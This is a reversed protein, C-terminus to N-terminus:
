EDGEGLTDAALNHSVVTANLDSAVRLGQHEEVMREVYAPTPRPGEPRIAEGPLMQWAVVGLVGATLAGAPALRRLPSAPVGPVPFLARLRRSLDSHRRGAKAKELRARLATDFDDTLERKPLGTLLSVTRRLAELEYRCGACARLHAEVARRRALPLTGDVYESLWRVIRHCGRETAKWM